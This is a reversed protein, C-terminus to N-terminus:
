VIWKGVFPVKKLLMSFIFSIFFVGLSIVPVSIIPHFSNATFGRKNLEFIILMHMAYIGLSAQSMATFNLNFKNRHSYKATLFIEVSWILMFITPHDLYQGVFFHSDFSKKITLAICIVISIVGIFHLWFRLKQAIPYENLYHGLIFYGASGITIDLGLRNVNNLYYTSIRFDLGMLTYKAVVFVLFVLLSYEIQRQDANSVFIKIIPLLIYNGLLLYLFWFHAQTNATLINSFVTKLNVASLIFNVHYLQYVTEWFFFLFLLKAINKYYLQKISINKEASLFLAGSIMFFVPVSFRTIVSYALLTGQKVGGM